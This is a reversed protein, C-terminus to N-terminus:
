LQVCFIGSVQYIDFVGCRLHQTTLAQAAGDLSSLVGKLPGERLSFAPSLRSPPTEVNGRVPQVPSSPSRLYSYLYFEDGEKATRDVFLVFPSTEM